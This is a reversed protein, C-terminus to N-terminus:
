NAWAAGLLTAARNRSKRPACSQRASLLLLIGTTGIITFWPLVPLMCVCALIGTWRSWKRARGLGWGTALCLLAAQMVLILLVALAINQSRYDPFLVGLFPRVSRTSNVITDPRIILFGGVAFFAWRLIERLEPLERM